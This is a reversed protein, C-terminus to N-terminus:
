ANGVVGKGDGVMALDIEWMDIQEKELEFAMKVCEVGLDLDDLSFYLGKKRLLMAVAMKIRLDMEDQSIEQM